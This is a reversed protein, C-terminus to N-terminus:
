VAPEHVRVQVAQEPARLPLRVQAVTGKGEDSEVWINGEYEWCISRCIDLGLGTGELKTTFFPEFVRPLLEAPIGRGTDAISLGLVRDGDEEHEVWARITLRGGHEMSEKANTVLNLLLQDLDQRRMHIRPLDPAIEKVITIGSTRLGRDLLTLVGDMSERLDLMHAPEISGRSFSLLGRFIRLSSRVYQDLTELDQTLHEKTITGAEADRRLTELLPQIVGFSNNLDHSIARALEGLATRREAEMLRDQQLRFFESHFATASAIPLFSDITELDSVVFAGPALARIALLGAAGDRQRLPALLLSHPMPAEPGVSTVPALLLPPITADARAPDILISREIRDIAAIAEADLQVTRGIRTSKGKTWAIVEARTTLTGADRDLTHVSASHDYGLLRKMGHLVQYLIDAPRLQLLVKRVIRERIEFARERARHGLHQSLIEAADVGFHADRRGFSRGARLFAFAGVPIGLSEVSTFLVQRDDPSKRERVFRVAQETLTAVRTHPLLKEGKPTWALHYIAEPASGRGFRWVFGLDATLMAGLGRHVHRLFRDPEEEPAFRELDRAMQLLYALREARQRHNSVPLAPEKRRTGDRRGRTVVWAGSVSGDPATRSL